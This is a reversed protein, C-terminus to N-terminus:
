FRISDIDEVMKRRILEKAFKPIQNGKNVLVNSAVAFFIFDRDNMRNEPIDAEGSFFHMDKIRSLAIERGTKRSFQDNESCFSMGFTMTAYYEDFFLPKVVITAAYRSPHNAWDYDRLHWVMLDDENTKEEQAPLPFPDGKPRIGSLDIMKAEFMNKM